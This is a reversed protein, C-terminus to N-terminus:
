GGRVRDEDPRHAQGRLLGGGLHDGRRVGIQQGGADVIRTRSTLGGYAFLTVPQEEHAHLAGWVQPAAGVIVASLLLAGAVLAVGLRVFWM